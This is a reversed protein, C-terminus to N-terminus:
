LRRQQSGSGGIAPYEASANWCRTCDSDGCVHHYTGLLRRMDEPDLRSCIQAEFACGAKETGKVMPYPLTDNFPVAIPSEVCVPDARLGDVNPTLSTGSKM